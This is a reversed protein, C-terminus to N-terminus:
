KVGARTTISTGHFDDIRNTFNELALADLEQTAIRGVWEDFRRRGRPDARDNAPLLADADADGVTKGPDGFPRRVPTNVM